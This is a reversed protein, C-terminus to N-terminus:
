PALCPDPGTYPCDILDLSDNTLDRLVYGITSPAAGQCLLEVGVVLDGSAELIVFRLAPNSAGLVIRDTAFDVDAFEPPPTGAFDSALEAASSVVHTAPPQGIFGLDVTEFTVATGTVDQAEATCAAQAPSEGGGCGVVVALLLVHRM